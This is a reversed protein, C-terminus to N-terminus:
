DLHSVALRSCPDKMTRVSAEEDAGVGRTLM